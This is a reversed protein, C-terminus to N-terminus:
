SDKEASDFVGAFRDGLALAIRKITNTRRNISPSCIVFARRAGAREVAGKLDSEIVGSGCFLRWSYGSSKFSFGDAGMQSFEKGPRTTPQNQGAALSRTLWSM